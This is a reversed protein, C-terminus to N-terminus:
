VRVTTVPTGRRDPCGREMEADLTKELVHVSLKEFLTAVEAEPFLVTVLVDRLVFGAIKSLLSWGSEEAAEVMEDTVYANWVRLLASTYNTVFKDANEANQQRRSLLADNLTDRDKDAYPPVKGAMEPIPDGPLPDRPSTRAFWPPPSPPRARAPAATTSDRQLLRGVARNGITRQLRLVPEFRTRAADLTGDDPRPSPAHLQWAGPM